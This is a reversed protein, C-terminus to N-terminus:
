AEGRKRRAIAEALLPMKRDHELQRKWDEEDRAEKKEWAIAAKRCRDKEPETLRVGGGCAACQFYEGGRPVVPGCVEGDVVHDATDHWPKM